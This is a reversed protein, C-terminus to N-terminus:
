SESSCVSQRPPYIGGNYILLGNNASQSHKIHEERRREKVSICVNNKHTQLVKFYENMTICEFMLDCEDFYRNQKPHTELIHMAIEKENVFKEQCPIKTDGKIALELENFKNLHIKMYRESSFVKDCKSCQYLKM